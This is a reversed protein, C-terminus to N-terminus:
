GLREHRGRGRHRRVAVLSARFEDLRRLLQWVRVGSSTGFALVMGIAIASGRGANAAAILGYGGLTLCVGIRGGLEFGWGVLEDRHLVGALAVACSVSLSLAWVRALVLPVEEVITGPPNGALAAAGALVALAGLLAITDPTRGYRMRM